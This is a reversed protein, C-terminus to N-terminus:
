GQRHTRAHIESSKGNLVKILEIEDRIPIGEHGIFPIEPKRKRAEEVANPIVRSLVFGRKQYFRLAPLNDNTTMLKMLRCHTEIAKKEVERILTTGIGKGEELSDLSIIECEGERIVFTILGIIEGEANTVALGDLESCDYVGSSIVMETSGWHKQFFDRIKQKPLREVPEMRM